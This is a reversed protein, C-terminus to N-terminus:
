RLALSGERGSAESMIVKEMSLLDMCGGSDAAKDRVGVSALWSEKHGTQCKVASLQGAFLRGSPCMSISIRPNEGLSM